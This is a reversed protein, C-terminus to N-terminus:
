LAIYVPEAISVPSGPPLAKVVGNVSRTVTFTQPSSEGSVELVRCREGAIMVDFPFDAGFVFDDFRTATSSGNQLGVTTADANFDDDAECVLTGNVYARITSGQYTVLIRDGDAAPTSDTDVTTLTPSDFKELRWEAASVVWGFRWRQNSSAWRFSVYTDSSDPLAALTVAVAGDSQGTDIIARGTGSPNYAQNSDIGWTGQNVTWSQGTDTTGLTSASDARDFTDRLEPEMWTPGQTTAVLLETATSTAGDALESGATDVRDYGETEVQGVHWPSEPQCVYTIVHEFQDLVESYGIVLLSIDDPPLDASPDTIVIRDGVDVALAADTLSPDSAFAPHALHIKVKPYRAEDVTGLHLRWGAQNALQGDHELSLDISTDYRGVGEPPDQTSMPGTTQEVQVSSGAVRKVTVYNLTRQDDDIPQLAENLEHDACSLALVPSQNYMSRRPRYGFGLSDRPEYLIGGDTDAAEQLLDLLSKDLQDGMTTTTTLAADTVPYFGVEEDACLRVMRDLPQEANWAAIAGTSRSYATLDDAVLLHGVKVDTLGRDRGVTVTKAVGLTRGNVTGSRSVGFIPDDKTDRNDFDLVQTRWNVNPGNQSLEFNLIVFGRTNMSFASWDDLLSTGESDLCLTRLNGDADLRIDWTPASGTTRLHLLSTETTVGGSPMYVFLRVSIQGTDSYSPVTGVIAGTAMTPLPNSATWGDYDGLRPSGIIRGPPTGPIGGAIQTAERDDEMPWYAVINQRAPNSFERTMPSQLTREGQKLRRSVGSATISVTADKGSIDRTPPWSAVEGHFRYRRDDIAAGSQVTWTNGQADDFSTTGAAQASFDPSAVVTGGISDLLQFGFYYGAIAGGTINAVEGVELGATGGFLTTTSSGVVADGFQTWPGDITDATYFTVTYGGSGNDVDLTVRLARRAPGTPLSQGPGAGIRNGSTGDTSWILRPCGQRRARVVM